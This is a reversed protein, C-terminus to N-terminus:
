EIWRQGLLLRPANPMVITRANNHGKGRLSAISVQIQMLLQHKHLFKGLAGSRDVQFVDRSGLVINSDCRDVM